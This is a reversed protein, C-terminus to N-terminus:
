QKSVFINSTKQFFLIYCIYMDKKQRSLSLIYYGKIPGPYPYSIIDQFFPYTRGRFAGAAAAVAAKLMVSDDIKGHYPNSLSALKVARTECQFNGTLNFSLWKEVLIAYRRVTPLFM